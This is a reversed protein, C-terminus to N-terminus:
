LPNAGPKGLRVFRVVPAVVIADPWGYESPRMVTTVEFERGGGDAWIVTGFRYAAQESYLGLAREDDPM